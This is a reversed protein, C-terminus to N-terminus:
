LSPVKTNTIRDQVHFWKPTANSTQTLRWVGRGWQDFVLHKRIGLWTKDVFWGNNTQIARVRIAQIRVVIEKIEQLSKKPTQAKKAVSWLGKTFRVALVPLRESARKPVRVCRARLQTQHGKAKYNWRIKRGLGKEKKIGKSNFARAEVPGKKICSCVRAQISLDWWFEKWEKAQVKIWLKLMIEWCIYVTTWSHSAWDQAFIRRM